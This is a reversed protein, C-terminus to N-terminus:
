RTSLGGATMAQQVADRFAPRDEMFKRTFKVQEDRTIVKLSVLVALADHLHSLNAYEAMMQNSNM